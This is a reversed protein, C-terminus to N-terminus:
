WLKSRDLYFFLYVIPFIVLAAVAIASGVVGALLGGRKGALALQENREEIRILNSQLNNSTIVTMMAGIPYIHPIEAFGFDVLMLKIFMFTMISAWIRSFVGIMLLFGSLIEAAGFAIVWNERVYGHPRDVTIRPDAFTTLLKVMPDNLVGPYNDPVAATLNYNYLKLYGLALFGAGLVLRLVKTQMPNMSTIALKHSQWPSTLYLVAVTLVPAADVSVMWGWRLLYFWTGIIMAGCLPLATQTMILIALGVQAFKFISASAPDLPYSPMVLSDQTASYMLVITASRLFFILVWERLATWARTQIPRDTIFCALYHLWRQPAGTLNKFIGFLIIDVLKDRIFWIVIFATMIVFTTLLIAWINTDIGLFSSPHHHAVHNFDPDHFFFNPDVPNLLNHKLFREHASAIGASFTVLAAAAWQLRRPINRLLAPM